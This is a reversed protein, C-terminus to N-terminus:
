QTGKSDAAAEPLAKKKFIAVKSIWYNIVLCAADAVFKALAPPTIFALALGFLGSNVPINIAVLSFYSIAQTHGSTQTSQFTFHRHLFFGFVASILKSGINALIHQGDLVYTFLLFASMDLAYALLQVAMYKAFTM